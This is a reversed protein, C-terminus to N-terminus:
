GLLSELVVRLSAPDAAGNICIRGRELEVQITGSVPKGASRRAQTAASAPLPRCEAADTIRVPVLATTGAEGELLGQQYLRRWHFVQNPRIGHVRAVGTVSAGPAFTEEVIRRRELKTRPKGKARVEKGGTKEM